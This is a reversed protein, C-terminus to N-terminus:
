PVRSVRGGIQRLRVDKRVVEKENGQNEAKQKGARKNERSELDRM